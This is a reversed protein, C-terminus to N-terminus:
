RFGGPYIGRMGKEKGKRLLSLTGEKKHYRDKKTEGEASRPEYVTRGCEEDCM